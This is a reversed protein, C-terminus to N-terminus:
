YDCVDSHNVLQNARKVADRLEHDASNPDHCSSCLQTWELEVHRDTSQSHIEHCDLCTTTMNGREVVDAVNQWLHQEMVPLAHIAQESLDVEFDRFLNDGPVFTNPYPRGTSKSRGGRLHCQSCTSIVARPERNQASLFVKQPDATHTLSVDGHCTFCDLSTAAFASTEADVATTHCGACRDAFTQQDWEASQAGHLTGHASKDGQGSRFVASLLDLKGYARSRKLFRTLRRSGLVLQTQGAAGGNSETLAVVAPDDSLAARMTRQHPNSQWGPGIKRRHCFLCEDGTIYEPFTQGVHDSGWDAARDGQGARDEDSRGAEDGSVTLAMLAVVLAVSCLQMPTRRVPLRVWEGGQRQRRDSMRVCGGPRRTTVSAM